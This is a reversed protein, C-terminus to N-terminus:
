GGPDDERFADDLLGHIPRWDGAYVAADLLPLVERVPRFGVNVGGISRNEDFMVEDDRDHGVVIPSRAGFEGARKRLMRRKDEKRTYVRAPDYRRFRGRSDEQVRTCEFFAVPAGEAEDLAELLGGVIMDLGLSIVGAPIGREHMLRLTDAAGPFFDAAMAELEEKFYSVPIGRALREFMGIMRSNLVDGSIEQWTKVAIIPVAHRSINAFLRLHGPEHISSAIRRYVRIGAEGQTISRHMCEDFDSVFLDAGAIRRNLEEMGGRVWLGPGAQELGAASIKRNDIKTASL